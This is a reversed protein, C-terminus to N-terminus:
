RKRRKGKKGPPRGRKVGERILRDVHKEYASRVDVPEPGSAGSVLARADPAMAAHWERHEAPTCPHLGAMRSDDKVRRVCVESEEEVPPREHHVEVRDTGKRRLWQVSSFRRPPIMGDKVWGCIRSYAEEGKRDTRTALTVHLQRACDCTKIKRGKEDRRTRPCDMGCAKRLFGPLYGKKEPDEGRRHLRTMWRGDEGQWTLPEVVHFQIDPFGPTEGPYQDHREYRFEVPRDGGPFDALSVTDGFSISM